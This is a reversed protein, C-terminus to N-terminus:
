QLELLTVKQIAEVVAWVAQLIILGL